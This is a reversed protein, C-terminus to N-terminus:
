NEKEKGFIDKDWGRFEYYKERPEATWGNIGKKPLLYGHVYVLPIIWFALFWMAFSRSIFYSLALIVILLAIYKLFKRFRPSREEFHGFFINGLAIVMSVIAVEFWLTDTEWM